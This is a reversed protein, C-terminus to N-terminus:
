TARKAAPYKELLRERESAIQEKWVTNVILRGIWAGIMGFLMAAPFWAVFLLAVTESRRYFLSITLLAAVATLASWGEFKKKLRNSIKEQFVELDRDLARTAEYTSIQYALQNVIVIAEKSSLFFFETGGGSKVKFKALAEHLRKEAWKANPFQAFHVLSARQPLSTQLEQLRKTPSRTTFGIKVVCRGRIQIHPDIVYIYGSSM